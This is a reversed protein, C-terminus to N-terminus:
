PWPVALILCLRPPMAFGTELVRACRAAWAILGASPNQDVMQHPSDQPYEKSTTTKTKKGSLKAIFISIRPDVSIINNRPHICKYAHHRRSRFRDLTSICSAQCSRNVTLFHYFMCIYLKKTSRYLWVRAINGTFIWHTTVNSIKIPKATAKTAKIRLLMM